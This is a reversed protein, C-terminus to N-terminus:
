ELHNFTSKSSVCRSNLYKFKKLSNCLMDVWFKDVGSKNHCMCQDVPPMSLSRKSATPNRAMRPSFATFSVERSADSDQVNQRGRRKGACCEM